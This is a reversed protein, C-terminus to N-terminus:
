GKGDADCFWDEDARTYGTIPDREDPEAPLVLDLNAEWDPNNTAGMWDIVARVAGPHERLFPVIRCHGTVYLILKELGAADVSGTPGELEYLDIVREIKNELDSM